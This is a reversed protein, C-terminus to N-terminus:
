VGSRNFNVATGMGKQGKLAKEINGKELGSIIETEIGLEIIESVKKMMGGTVDTNSSSSLASLNNKTFKKILAANKNKKPDSDYVGSVDTAHIIRSANLNKALYSIIEDGSLISCKQASDYAPVGYLVPILNIELMGKIAKLDLSDLKGNKMVASSSPQCPVAPLKKKILEKCVLSNLVNQLRQTEAFDVLQEKTKIGKHIGTRKVIPHGYSGAGHILVLSNKEPNFGNKIEASIRKINKINLSPKQESKKTILSGGIKLVILEKM